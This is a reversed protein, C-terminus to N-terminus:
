SQAAAIMTRPLRELARVILRHTLSALQADVQKPSSECTLAFELPSLHQTRRITEHVQPPVSIDMSKRCTGCRLGSENDLYLPDNAAIRRRCSACTSIDPFSGAIRLLWIEFYRSLAQSAGPKNALADVCAAIMRYLKENAEHPPAFEGILEAMHALVEATELNAALDFNSKIIEANSVTVLERNEKEYFALRVVTFPELAAGFRSKMRRAGKAVARVLGAARTFCVVIRDAEGLNYSRLVIADTSVLQM